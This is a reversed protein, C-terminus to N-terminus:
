VRKVPTVKTFDALRDSIEKVKARDLTHASGNLIAQTVENLLGILPTLDYVNSDRLGTKTHRQTRGILKVKVLRNISRQIQRDSVGCRAALTMLSPSPMGEREWWAGALQILILLEIPSFRWDPQLLQNLLLLDNPVQVFGRDAVQNGWRNMADTELPLITYRWSSVSEHAALALAAM